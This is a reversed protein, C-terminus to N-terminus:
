ARGLGSQDETRDDRGESFRTPLRGRRGIGSQRQNRNPPASQRAAPRDSQEITGIAVKVRDYSILLSLSYRNNPCAFRVPQFQHPKPSRRLRYQFYWWSPGGVRCM